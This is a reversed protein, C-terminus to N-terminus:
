FVGPWREGHDPDHARGSQLRAVGVRELSGGPAGGRVDVPRCVGALAAVHNAMRERVGAWALAGNAGSVNSTVVRVAPKVCSVDTLIAAATDGRMM